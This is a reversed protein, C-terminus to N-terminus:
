INVLIPVYFKILLNVNLLYYVSFHKTKHLNKDYIKYYQNKTLLNMKLLNSTIEM